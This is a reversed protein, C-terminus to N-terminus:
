HRRRRSARRKNQRRSKRSRRRSKRRRRGGAPATDTFSAYVLQHDSEVSISTSGPYIKIDGLPNLGFVKDGKYRYNATDGEHESMKTKVDIDKEVDDVTKKPIKCYGYNKEFEHYREIKCSSDWNHCCSYPSDGKYTLKMDNVTIDTIADYRDNFDGMVFINTPTIGGLFTTIEDELFKKNNKVMYNNFDIMNTGKSPDQAGHISVLLYNKDTLVMLVPRGGEVFGKQNTNDIIKFKQVNGITKTNIIISIGVTQAPSGINPGMGYKSVVTKCIQVYSTGILNVVGLMTNIADSGTNAEAATLNMEQLGVACPKTETIFKQLLSKANNWYARRNPTENNLLFAYESAKLKIDDLPESSDSAWSM